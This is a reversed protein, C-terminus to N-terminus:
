QFVVIPPPVSTSQLLALSAVVSPMNLPVLFV